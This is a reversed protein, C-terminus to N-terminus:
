EQTLEELKHLVEHSPKGVTMAIARLHRVTYHELGKKNLESWRGNSIGSIKALQYRTVGYQKLYQDLLNM